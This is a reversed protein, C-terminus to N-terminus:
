KSIVDTIHLPTLNVYNSLQVTHKHHICEHKCTQTPIHAPPPTISKGTLAHDQITTRNEKKNKKGQIIIRGTPFVLPKNHLMKANLEERRETGDEGM